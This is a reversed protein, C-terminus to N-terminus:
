KTNYAINYINGGQALGNVSLAEQYHAHYGVGDIPYECCACIM